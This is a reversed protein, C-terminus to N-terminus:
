GFTEAVANSGSESVEAHVAALLASSFITFVVFGVILMVFGFIIGAGMSGDLAQTQAEGTLGLLVIPVVFIVLAAVVFLLIIVLLKLVHGSTLKWTQMIANIPNFVRDVAVVPVIIMLRCALYVLLVLGPIMVIMGAIEDLASLGAFVAAFLLSGVFYVILLLIAAGLMTLGGKFGRGISEGFEPRELPSSMAALSCQQGYLLIIYVVYFGIMMAIVGGGLAGLGAAGNSASGLGAALFSGGIGAAFLLMVVIQAAFFVLWLGLLQMFRERMMAFTNSFVRGIDITM